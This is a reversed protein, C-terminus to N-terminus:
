DLAFQQQWDNDNVAEPQASRDLLYRGLVLHDMKTRLFCRYADEPTCVIPEGRVNFSTNTLVPCGPTGSSRPRASRSLATAHRSAGDPRAGLLRHADGRSRHVRFTSNTSASCANEADTMDRRRDKKVPAVLLMYPSDCDLDFWENLASVCSAPRLPGSRERFKIKLNMTAQMRPISSRGLHQARRACASRVGDPGPVVRRGERRGADGAVSNPCRKGRCLRPLPGGQRRLFSEIAEDSFQPGLLAGHMCRGERWGRVSMARSALCTTGRSSPRASRAVPMAPPPSSGSENSPVKACCDHRQRRLQSGRRGGPLSQGTRHGRSARRAMRLM